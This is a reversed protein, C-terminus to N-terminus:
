LAHVPDLISLQLIALAPIIIQPVPPLCFICDLQLIRQVDLIATTIRNLRRIQGGPVLRYLVLVFNESKAVCVSLTSPARDSVQQGSLSLM